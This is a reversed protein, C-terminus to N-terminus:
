EVEQAMWHPVGKGPSIYVLKAEAPKRGSISAWANVATRLFDRSARDAGKSRALRSGRRYLASEEGGCISASFHIGQTPPEMEPYRDRSVILRLGSFFDFVHRRDQGPRFASGPLDADRVTHLEEVAAAYRKRLQAIDQPEFPIAIDDM